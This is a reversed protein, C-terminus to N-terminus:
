IADNLGSKTTDYVMRVKDIEKEKCKKNWASAVPFVHTVSKVSSNPKIYRKEIVSELKISVPDRFEASM